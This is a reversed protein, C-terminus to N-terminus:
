NELSTRIYENSLVEGEVDYWVGNQQTAVLSFRARIECLDGYHNLESVQRHCDMESTGVITFYSLMGFSDRKRVLGTM